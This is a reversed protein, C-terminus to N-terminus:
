NSKIPLPHSKTKTRATFGMRPQFDSENAMDTVEKQWMKRKYALLPLPNIDKSM